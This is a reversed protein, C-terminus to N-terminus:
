APRRRFSVAHWRNPFSWGPSGSQFEEESFPKGEVFSFSFLRWFSNNTGMVQVKQPDDGGPIQVYTDGYLLSTIATNTMLPVSKTMVLFKMLRM